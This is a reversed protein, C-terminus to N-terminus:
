LADRKVRARLVVAIMPHEPLCCAIKTNCKRHKPFHSVM